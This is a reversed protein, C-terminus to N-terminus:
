SLVIEGTRVVTTFKTIGSQVVIAKSLRVNGSFDVKYAHASTPYDKATQATFPVVRIQGTGVIVHVKDDFGADKVAARRICYRGRKDTYARAHVAATVATSMSRPPVTSGISMAIADADYSNVDEWNPYFVFAMTLRGNADQFQHNTRTYDTPFIAGQAYFDHVIQRVQTHYCKLGQSRVLLTVDFASFLKNAKTLETIISQVAVALQSAPQNTM